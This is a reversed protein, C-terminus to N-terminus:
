VQRRDHSREEIKRIKRGEGGSSVVRQQEALKIDITSEFKIGIAAQQGFSRHSYDLARM